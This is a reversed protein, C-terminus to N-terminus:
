QVPLSSSKVCPLATVVFKVIATGALAVVAWKAAPAQVGDYVLATVAVGLAVVGAMWALNAVLLNYRLARSAYIFDARVSATAQFVVDDFRPADVSQLPQPPPKTTGYRWALHSRCGGKARCCFGGNDAGQMTPAVAVLLDTMNRVAGKAYFWGVVALVFTAFALALIADYLGTPTPRLSRSASVVVIVLAAVLLNTNLASMAGTQRINAETTLKLMADDFTFKKGLTFSGIGDSSTDDSATQESM